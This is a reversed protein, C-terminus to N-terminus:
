KTVETATTDTINDYLILNNRNMTISRGGSTIHIESAQSISMCTMALCACALSFDADSLTKSTDALQIELSGDQNSTASVSIGLPLLCRMDDDSPGMLYLTLLYSFDGEHGSAERKESVIVEELTKQYDRRVYYFRVSEKISSCGSLLMALLLILATLRKM